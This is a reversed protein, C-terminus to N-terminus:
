ATEEAIARTAEDRIVNWLQDIIRAPGPSGSPRARPRPLDIDIIAKGMRGPRRALVVVRDALLVAEDIGHTVFM